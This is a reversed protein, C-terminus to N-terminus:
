KIYYRLGVAIRFQGLGEGKNEETQYTKRDGNDNVEWSSLVGGLLEMNLGIGLEPYIKHEIGFGLQVGLTEGTTVSKDNLFTANSSYTMYGLGMYYTLFWDKDQGFHTFMAFAPGVYSINDKISFTGSQYTENRVASVSYSALYQAYSLRIGYGNKFIYSASADWVFGSAINELINRQFPEENPDIKATRWGYGADLGFIMTPLYRPMEFKVTTMAITDKPAPTNSSASSLGSSFDENAITDHIKLIAGTIQHCSSGFLGPRKHETVLLADGGSKGVELKALEFVTASDCNLTAGGDTISLTGIVEANNPMEAYYFMFTSDPLQPPYAKIVNKNVKLTCSNFLSIIVILTIAIISKKM